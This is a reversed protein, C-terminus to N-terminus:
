LQELQQAGCGQPSYAPLDGGSNVYKLSRGENNWSGAATMLEPRWSPPVNPTFSWTVFVRESPSWRWHYFDQASYSPLHPSTGPPRVTAPQEGPTSGPGGPEGTALPSDGRAGAPGATSAGPLGAGNVPSRVARGPVQGSSSTPATGAAGGANSPAHGSGPDPHPMGGEGPAASGSGGSGTSPNLGSADVASASGGTADGGVLRSQAAWAAAMLVLCLGVGSATARRSM